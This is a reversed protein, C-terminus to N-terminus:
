EAQQLIETQMNVVTEYDYGDPKNKGTYDYLKNGIKVRFGDKFYTVTKFSSDNTPIKVEILNKLEHNIWDYTRDIITGNGLKLTGNSNKKPAMDKGNKLINQAEDIHQPVTTAREVIYNSLNFLTNARNYSSTFSSLYEDCKLSKKEDDSLYTMLTKYIENQNEYDSKALKHISNTKAIMVVTADKNTPLGQLLNDLDKTIGDPNEKQLSDYKELATRINKDLTGGESKPTNNQVSSNNKPTTKTNTAIPRDNKINEIKEKTPLDMKEIDAEDHIKGDKNFLSGNNKIFDKLLTAKQEDSLNLGKYSDTELIADLVGKADTYDALNLKGEGEGFLDSISNQWNRAGIRRSSDQYGKFSDAKEKAPRNAINDSRTQILKAQAEQQAKLEEQAKREKEAAAKAEEELKTSLKDMLENAFKMAERSNAKIGSRRLERKLERRTIIGDCDKSHCNAYNLTDLFASIENNDLVGDGDDFISFGEFTSFDNVMFNLNKNQALQKFADFQKSINLDNNGM